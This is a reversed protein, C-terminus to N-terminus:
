PALWHGEVRLGAQFAAAVRGWDESDASALALWSRGDREITAILRRNRELRWALEPDWNWLRGMLLSTGPTGLVLVATDRPVADVTTASVVPLRVGCKARLMDNLWGAQVTQDAVRQEVAIVARPVGGEVLVTEGWRARSRTAPGSEAMQGLAELVREKPLRGQAAEAAQSSAEGERLYWSLAGVYSAEDMADRVGEWALTRLTEAPEGEPSLLSGVVLAQAPGALAERVYRHAQGAALGAPIGQVWVAVQMGDPLRRRVNRVSADKEAAVVVTDTLATLKRWVEDSLGEGVYPGCVLWGARRMACAVDFWEATLETPGLPVRSVFWLQQFGRHRLHVALQGWFWEIFALRAVDPVEGAALAASDLSGCLTVATFGSELLCDLDATCAGFDLPPLPGESLRGANQPLWEELPIDGDPPVHVVASGVGLVEQADLAVNEVEHARLAGLPWRQLGNDSGLPFAPANVYLGPRGPRPRRVPWLHVAVPVSVTGDTWVGELRGRYTAPGVEPGRVRLGVVQEFRRPEDGASVTSGPVDVVGEPLPGVVRFPEVAASPLRRAGQPSSLDSLRVHVPGAADKAIGILVTELEGIGVDVKLSRLARGRADLFPPASRPLRGSPGAAQNEAASTLEVRGVGSPGPPSLTLDAGELHCVGLPIATRVGPLGLAVRYVGPGPPQWYFSLRRWEGPSLQLPTGSLEHPVADSECVFSLGVPGGGIDLLPLLCVQFRGTGGAGEMQMSCLVAETAALLPEPLAAPVLTERVRLARGAPVPVSAARAGSLSGDPSARLRVQKLAGPGAILVVGEGGSAVSLWGVDDLVLSGGGEQPGPFDVIGTSTRARGRWEEQSSGRLSLQQELRVASASSNDVVYSVSVCQQGDALAVTKTITMGSPAAWSMMLAKLSESDTQNTVRYPCPLGDVSDQLSIPVASADPRRVAIAGGGAVDVSVAVLGNEMEYVTRRGRTHETLRVGASAPLVCVGVLVLVTVPTLVRAM